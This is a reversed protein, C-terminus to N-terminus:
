KKLECREEAYNWYFKSIITGNPTNEKVKGYSGYNDLVEFEEDCFIIIDGTKFHREELM